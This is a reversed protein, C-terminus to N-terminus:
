RDPIKYTGNTEVAALAMTTALALADENLEPPSPPFPWGWELIGMKTGVQPHGRSIHTSEDIRQTSKKGRRDENRFEFHSKQVVPTM